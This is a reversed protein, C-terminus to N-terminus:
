RETNLSRRDVNNTCYGHKMEVCGDAGYSRGLTYKYAVLGSAKYTSTAKLGGIQFGVAILTITEHSNVKDNEGQSLSTCEQLVKEYVRKNGEVSLYLIIHTALRLNVCSFFDGTVYDCDNIDSNNRGDLLRGEDIEIGLVCACKFRQSIAQMWRADGCGLEVVISSKDLGIQDIFGDILGMPSPSLTAVTTGDDKYSEFRRKAEKLLRQKIRLLASM